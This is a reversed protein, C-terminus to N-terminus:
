PTSPPIDPVPIVIRRYRIRLPIATIKENGVLVKFWYLGELRFVYAFQVVMNQGKEEGEFHVTNMIARETEGNPLEPVINVEFRGEARGSKLMLVLKIQFPFAPMDMPPNPGAEQHWLTDIIRILSLSGDKAEIVQDCFCAAQIYPGEDFSM